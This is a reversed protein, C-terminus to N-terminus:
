FWIAQRVKMVERPTLDKFTRVFYNPYFAGFIAFKIKNYDEDSTNPLKSLGRAARAPDNPQLKPEIGARRLGEYIELITKDMDELQPLQLHRSNCLSLKWGTECCM